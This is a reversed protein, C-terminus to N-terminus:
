RRTWRRPFWSASPARRRRRAADAPERHRGDPDIGRFPPEGVLMEFLVCGLSYIDSRGDLYESGDIQEPSMYGPTGVVHGQHDSDPRGGIARAIGFDAVVRTAPTSCSTPPSSTAISWTPLQPRLEARRGGRARDPARRGVPLQRERALRQRLTEGEIYPM